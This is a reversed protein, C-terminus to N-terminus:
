AVQEELWPDGDVAVPGLSSPVQEARAPSEVPTGVPHAAVLVVDVLAVSPSPEVPGHPEGGDEHGCGAVPPLPDQGSVRRAPTHASCAVRPSLERRGPPPAAPRQGPRRRRRRARDVRDGVLLAARAQRVSRHVLRRTYRDHRGWGPERTAPDSSFRTLDPTRGLVLTSGAAPASGEPSEVLTSPVRAPRPPDTRLVLFWPRLWRLVYRCHVAAQMPGDTPGATRLSPETAHIRTLRPDAGYSELHPLRDAVAGFASRSTWQPLVPPRRPSPM